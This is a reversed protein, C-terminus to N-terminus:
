TTPRGSNSKSDASKDQNSAAMEGKDIFDSKSSKVSRNYLIMYTVVAVFVVAIIIYVAITIKPDSSM